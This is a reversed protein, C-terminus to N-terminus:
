AACARSASAPFEVLAPVRVRVPYPTTIRAVSRVAPRRSSYSEIMMEIMGYIVLLGFATATVSTSVNTFASIATFAALGLGTTASLIFRASSKMNLTM